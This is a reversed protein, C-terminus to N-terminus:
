EDTKLLLDLPRGMAISRKLLISESKTMPAERHDCVSELDENADEPVVWSCFRIGLNLAM